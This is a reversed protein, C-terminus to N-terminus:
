QSTKHPDAVDDSTVCASLAIGQRTVVRVATVELEPSQTLAYRRAALLLQELAAPTTETREDATAIM